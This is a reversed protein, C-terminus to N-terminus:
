PSNSKYVFRDLPPSVDKGSSSGQLHPLPLWYSVTAGAEQLGQTREMTHDSRAFTLKELPLHLEGRVSDIQIGLFVLATEPGVSKSPEMPLGAHECVSQMILANQLCKDSHPAGVPLFIM